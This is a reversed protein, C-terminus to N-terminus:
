NEPKIKNFTKNKNQVLKNKLQNMKTEKSKVRNLIDFDFSM